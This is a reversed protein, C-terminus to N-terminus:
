EDLPNLIGQELWIFQDELTEKAVTNATKNEKSNLSGFHDAVRKRAMMCFYNALQIPSTDNPKDKVLSIAYSCTAAMAFLETGIEVLHGLLIQKKELGQMYIGMYHFITRALKHSKKEIFSFHTSLEGFERYSTIYSKNLWRKSYWKTYHGALKLGVRIKEKPSLSKKMVGKVGRLHPDLAERALFLRIIETTGEVIRGIRADRMMREVPYPTEGREKLSTETEYGRGGRLQVLLDIIKWAEETCFLKTMAAEIRIDCEEQDVWHSALHVMAEMAMTTAAIYAIKERGAEHLGIPSGWQVRDRGWKKAINLALKASGLSCAPLSLRGVNLTSLAVALGRGLDGLLNEKPVKVDKFRILGNQIGRMGMFDCRHLLEIGPTNAEVIFTSIQRREKGKVILSPTRAMVVLLDAIPGNTCWLKEGNLLYFSDDEALEATTSMRAPDSGAELETLAFASLAGDALLPFYKEKQEKTGFMKLPQPVGISQHASVWAATSTCYSAIMINVRNYNVQSFGLGGYEKPVKMKFVGLKKLGDIVDQPITRTVDVEAPDLNKELFAAVDTIYADGFAKEEVSQKPFPYLMEPSFTGMFLNSAFSPKRGAKERAREAIELAQREEENMKSMDIPLVDDDM